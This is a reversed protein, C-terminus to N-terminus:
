FYDDFISNKIKFPIVEAHLPLNIESASFEVYYLMDAYACIDDLTKECIMEANAFLTILMNGNIKKQDVVDSYVKDAFEHRMAISDGNITFTNLLQCVGLADSWNVVLSVVGLQMASKIFDALFDEYKCYQKCNQECIRM